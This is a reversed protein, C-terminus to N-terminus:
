KQLYILLINNWVLVWRKMYQKLHILKFFDWVNKTFLIMNIKVENIVFTIDEKNSIYTAFLIPESVNPTNPSIEDIYKKPIVTALEPILREVVFTIESSNSFSELVSVLYISLAETNKLKIVPANLKIIRERKAGYIVLSINNLLTDLRIIYTSANDRGKM